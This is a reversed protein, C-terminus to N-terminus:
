FKKREVERPDRRLYGARKLRQRFDANYVVLARSTALRLAEAQGRIGGGKILASVYFKDAIKMKRLAGNAIMQLEETPFYEALTKGNVQVTKDGTAFLRVRAVATKRRGVAEWYRSTKQKTEEDRVEALKEENKPTTIKVPRKKVPLRVVSEEQAGVKKEIPLAEQKAM